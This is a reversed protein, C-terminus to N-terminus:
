SRLGSQNRLFERGARKKEFGPHHRQVPIHPVALRFFIFHSFIKSKCACVGAGIKADNENHFGAAHADGSLAHCVLVANTREANLQGYTEYALTIPGLRVGGDLKMEHPPGAFTFFQKEVLGVGSADNELTKKM